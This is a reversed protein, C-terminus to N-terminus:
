VKKTVETCLDDLLQIVQQKESNIFAANESLEKRLRDIKAKIDNIKSM